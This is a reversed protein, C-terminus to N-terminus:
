KYIGHAGKVVVSLREGMISKGREFEVNEWRKGGKRKWCSGADRKTNGFKKVAIWSVRGRACVKGMM